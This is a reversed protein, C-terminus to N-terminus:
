IEFLLFDAIYGFWGVVVRMDWLCYLLQNEFGDLLVLGSPELAYVTESLFICGGYGSHCAM